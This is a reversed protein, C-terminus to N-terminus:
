TLALSAAAGTFTIPVAAGLLLTASHSVSSFFGSASTWASALPLHSAPTGSGAPSASPLCTSDTVVVLAWPLVAVLLASNVSSLVGGAGAALRFSSPLSVVMVLVSALFPTLRLPVPSAPVLTVTEMPPPLVCVAVTPALPPQFTSNLSPSRGMGPWPFLVLVAKLTTSCSLAPLSLATAVWFTVNCPGSLGSDVGRMLVIAPSSMMLAASAWPATDTDPMASAPLLTVTVSPPLVSVTVAPM